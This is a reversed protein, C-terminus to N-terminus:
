PTTLTFTVTQTYIGADYTWANVLRFTLQGHATPNIPGTGSALLQAVTHSLTGNRLPPVPTAVWSVNSIDVTAPGSTLHGNAIITLTWSQNNSVQRVRYDIQVPPASVVPTTDPDAAPFIITKPTVTLDLRQASAPAAAAGLTMLALLPLMRATM